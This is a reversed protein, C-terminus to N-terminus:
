YVEDCVQDLFYIESQIFLFLFLFIFSISTNQM